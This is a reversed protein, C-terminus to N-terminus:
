ISRKEAWVGGQRLAYTRRMGDLIDVRRKTVIPRADQDVTWKSDQRKEEM